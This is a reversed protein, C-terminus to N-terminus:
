FSWRLRGFLSYTGGMFGYESGSVGDFFQGTLLLEINDQLSIMCSPGLFYSKDSPNFMCAININTIPSVPYSIQSFIEYKGLSLNKASLNFSPNLLSVGTVNDAKTSGQSNYLFSFHLYINNNFTYDGSLTSSVSLEKLFASAEGRICINGLDGSWGGGIVIDNFYKGGILQFDYDLLNFRYRAAIVTEGSSDAKLALDINSTSSTYWTLAVADSGPREEYDFDIYSFTNFLDNPNWVLNIGWNIRQRGARLQINKYNYDLYLRDVSSNLFWNKKNALNWSLDIFGNDKELIDSYGSLQSIMKGSIIRNRIGAELRINKFPQWNINIRNHIQNYTTWNDTQNFYYLAQMDKIYGSFELEQSQTEPLFSIISFLVIFFHKM